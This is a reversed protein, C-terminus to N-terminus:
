LKRIMEEFLQKFAQKDEQYIHEFPDIKEYPSDYMMGMALIDAIVDSQQEASYIELGKPFYRKFIKKMEDQIDFGGTCRVYLAHGLEHFFVYEPQVDFKPDAITHYIFIHLEIGRETFQVLCHSSVEKHSYPIIGIM